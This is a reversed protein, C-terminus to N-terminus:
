TGEAGGRNGSREPASSAAGAAYETPDAMGATRFGRRREECKQCRGCHSEPVRGFPRGGPPNLCSFTKGWPVDDKWRRLVQAKTRDALPARIRVPSGTGSMLLAELGKLFAKRADDFPNGKLLGIWLRGIRHQACFLGATALLLLNRGPLFVASDPARRGPVAGSGLAWHRGYIPEVPVRLTVLPELGGRGKRLATLLGRLASIEAREWRLGQVLYIPVVRAHRTLAEQLLAASEVGGSALVAAVSSPGTGKM